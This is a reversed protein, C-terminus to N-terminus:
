LKPGKILQAVSEQMAQECQRVDENIQAGLIRLSEQSINIHEEEPSPILCGQLGLMEIMEEIGTKPKQQEKKLELVAQLAIKLRILQQRENSIANQTELIQEITPKENISPDAISM